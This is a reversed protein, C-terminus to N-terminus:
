RLERRRALYAAHDVAPATRRAPAPPPSPAAPRTVEIRGIHVHIDPVRNDRPQPGARHRHTPRPADVRLRVARREQPGAPAPEAADVVEINETARLVGADVLVPVVRDRVLVFPDPVVAQSPRPRDPLPTAAGPVAQETDPPAAVPAPPDGDPESHGTKGQVQPGADVPPTPASQSAADPESASPAPRSRPRRRGTAAAAPADGTQQDPLRSQRLVSAAGAPPWDPVPEFRARPRLHVASTVTDPAGHTRAAMRDLFGSM